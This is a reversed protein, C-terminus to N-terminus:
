LISSPRAMYRHVGLSGEVMNVKWDLISVIKGELRERELYIWGNFM